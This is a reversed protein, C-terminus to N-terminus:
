KLLLQAVFSILSLTVYLRVSRINAIKILANAIKNFKFLVYM